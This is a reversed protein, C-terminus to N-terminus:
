RGASELPFNMSDVREVLSGIDLFLGEAERGPELTTIITKGVLWRGERGWLDRTRIGWLTHLLAARGQTEGLYLLIHGPLHVLTAFPVGEALLRAERERPPLDALPVVRGVVAQRFSNRPLWLGFPTFLDRLTGSCDRGAYGDGWGYPQGMMRGALDAVQGFTFTLPFMGGGDAAIWGEVVHARRERDAVPILVRYGNGDGDILPLLAGIGVTLRYIGGKDAVAVGDRTLTLYRGNEYAVMFDEDVWALEVAPVWGYLLATEIFAWAGDASFHTVRLPVGPPIVGHQLNDFPFGEGAKRPDNFLPSRTPLARVDLRRLSIGRRDCSPFAERAVLLTLAERRMPTLPRLNESFVEHKAIWDLAWFPNKTTERPATSRWPFFHSELFAAALVKQEAASVVRGAEQSDVYVTPNQPLLTLDCIERGTLDRVCGATILCLFLLISVYRFM